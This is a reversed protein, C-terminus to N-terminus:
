RARAANEALREAVITEVLALPLPRDYRFQITGKSAVQSGLEDRHADIVTGSAPFLSYHDRFAAYYVLIRGHARFAPMAYSITETAEPAAAHIAERLRQLAARQEAPLSAFYEDVGTPVTMALWERVSM